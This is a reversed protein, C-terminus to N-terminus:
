LIHNILLPLLSVFDMGVAKIATLPNISQYTPQAHFRRGWQNINHANPYFAVRQDGLTVGWRVFLM